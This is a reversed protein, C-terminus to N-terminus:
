KQRRMRALSATRLPLRQRPVVQLLSSSFALDDVPLLQQRVLQERKDMRLIRCFRCCFNENSPEDVYAYRRSVRGTNTPPSHMSIQWIQRVLVVNGYVYQSGVKETDTSHFITREFRDGPKACSAVCTLCDRQMATEDTTSLSCNRDSVNFLTLTMIM